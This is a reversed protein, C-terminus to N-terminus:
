VTSGEMCIVPLYESHKTDNFLNAFYNSYGSSYSCASDSFDKQPTAKTEIKIISSLFILGMERTFHFIIQILEKSWNLIYCTSYIHFHKGPSIKAFIHLPNLFMCFTKFYHLVSYIFCKTVWFYWWLLHNTIYFNCFRVM